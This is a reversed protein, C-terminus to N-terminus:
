IDRACRFGGFNIWGDPHWTGRYTARFFGLDTEWWSGGRMVRDSTTNSTSERGDDKVYPYTEFLTSTWEWLNGTMDHAGVWSAGEPRSGVPATQGDINGSFVLRDEEFDNGWPYLLSDPGRAAYEWEAETPLRGGRMGCFDRAEFWTIQEVPRDAGTFDSSRAQTGGLRAFDGQTVEHRDLWFPEDFCIEHIPLEEPTASETGMMFCGAPVLVMEVADFEWVVPEWKANNTVGSEALAFANAASTPEVEVTPSAPIFDRACRFGNNNNAASPILKVRNSPRLSGPEHNGSGGRLVREASDDDPDERGDDGTYPYDMFISSTWERVNGSLDFAGVWSVGDPRSGVPMTSDDSNGEYVANDPVFVDGWPYVLGDPGRATYEWEAETPLRAGRMLCFDQAEFWTVDEVPHNTGEFDSPDAQVGGLRAFNGQTVEYRDIWFPADFCTEHVPREIAFDESGMMFCGAPVLVMEVADFQWVVPEWETNTTVGTEAVVFAVATPPPTFTPTNTATATPTATWQTATATLNLETEREFTATLRANATAVPDITPTQTWLTATQTFGDAAISTQLELAMEMNSQITEELDTTSLTPTETPEVTDTALPEPTDSVQAALDDAATPTPDNDGGGTLMVVAFVAVAILGLLATMWVIPLRRRKEPTRSKPTRPPTYTLDTDKTDVQVTMFGTRQESDPINVLASDLAEVLEHATQFRDDPDKALAAHIVEDVRPDLNSQLDSPRPPEDSLHKYMVAYPTPASFPLEGTLLQFAIIGLSYIDARADVVDAKVQEPAMYYPTGVIQGTGTLGSATGLVKAIGFDGLYANGRDDFMINNPKLDRHVVGRSHAYDLADGIQRLLKRADLTSPRGLKHLRNQLDSGTLYRMVIYTTGNESGHDYIPLIHIHELSAALKLEQNFRDLYGPQASLTAPLVKIAVTRGTEPDLAEYVEGMGGRGLVRKLVYRGLRQGSLDSQM